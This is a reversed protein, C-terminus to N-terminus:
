SRIELKLLHYWRINWWAILFMEAAKEPLQIIASDLNEGLCEQTRRERDIAEENMKVARYRPHGHIRRRKGQAPNTYPAVDCCIPFRGIALAGGALPNFCQFRRQRHVFVAVVHTDHLAFFFAAHPVCIAGVVRPELVELRAVVRVVQEREVLVYPGGSLECLLDM